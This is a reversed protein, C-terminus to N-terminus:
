PMPVTELGTQSAYYAALNKIEEPTLTMAFQAMVANKREGNAYQKLSHAIYDAYQGALNPFASSVSIGNEGHCTNCTKETATAKGAGVDGAVASLVPLMAFFITPLLRAKILTTM